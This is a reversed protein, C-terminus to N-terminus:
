DVDVWVMHHDSARNLDVNVDDKSPWFIGSKKISLTKSPLCYDLRLNGTSKDNFDATDFKPDGRHKLNALAQSSAALTGGKSEPTHEHNILPHKTMQEAAKLDGDGDNPDSNMDGAIVFRTGAPLGGKVDQDDYLYDAKEPTVYDTFMRIEDHNRRGNRDEAGDFVPPTPHAVLFHITKGDVDIPVDWHSKSSLRLVKTAEPSYYPEDTVVNDSDVKMPLLNNPMDEWLFKQFTRVKNELIPYQSLVVMGYQGPFKGYGFADQGTNEVKNDNNLDVGSPMGTNVPAYYVHPYKIPPQGNQPVGLHNEQFTKIGKGDADYDFENLLLVDPRVRQIVEAVRRPQVRPTKASLDEILKGATKRYLSVNFSAFRVTGPVKALGLEETNTVNSNAASSSPTQATGSPLLAVPGLTAFLIALGFCLVTRSGKGAALLRTTFSFSM